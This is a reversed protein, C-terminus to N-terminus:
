DEGSDARSTCFWPFRTFRLAPFRAEQSLCNAWIHWLEIKFSWLQYWTQWITNGDRATGSSVSECCSVNGQRDRHPWEVKDGARPQKSKKLETNLLTCQWQFVKVYLRKEKVKYEKDGHYIWIVPNLELFCLSGPTQLLGTDQPLCCRAREERLREFSSSKEGVQHLSGCCGGSALLTPSTRPLQHSSCRGRCARLSAIFHGSRM